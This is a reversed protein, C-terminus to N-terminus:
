TQAYLVPIPLWTNFKFIKVSYYNCIEYILYHTHSHPNESVILFSPKTEQFKKLIFYVLNNFIADRDLRNYAGYLDLRDMMKLCRDKATRLNESFVFDLDAGTLDVDPLTEPYFVLMQKSIM